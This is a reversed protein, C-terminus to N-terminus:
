YFSHGLPKKLYQTVQYRNGVKDKPGEGAWVGGGTWGEKWDQVNWAGEQGRPTQM